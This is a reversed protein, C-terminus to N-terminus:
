WESPLQLCRAVEIAKWLPLLHGTEEGDDTEMVMRM